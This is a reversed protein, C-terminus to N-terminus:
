VEERGEARELFDALGAAAEFEHLFVVFVPGVAAPVDHVRREELFEVAEDLAASVEFVDDLGGHVVVHELFHGDAAGLAFLEGLVDFVDVVHEFLGELGEGVVGEFVLAGFEVAFVVVNHVDLVFRGAVLEALVEAGEFALHLM